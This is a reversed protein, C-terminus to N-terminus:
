RGLLHHWWWPTLLTLTGAALAFLTVGRARSDAVQVRLRLLGALVYAGAAAPLPWRWRPQGAGLMVGVAGLLSFIAAAGLLSAAVWQATAPHFAVMLMAGAALVFALALGGIVTVIVVVIWVVRRWMDANM